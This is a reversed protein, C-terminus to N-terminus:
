KEYIPNLSNLRKGQLLVPKKVAGGEMEQHAVALHHQIIEAVMARVAHLSQLDQLVEQRVVGAEEVRLIEAAAAVAEVMQAAHLHADMLGEETQIM